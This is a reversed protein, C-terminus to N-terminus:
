FLKMGLGVMFTDSSGPNGGYDQHTYDFRVFHAPTVALDAGVGVAWGLSGDFGAAGLTGYFLVRNVAFGTRGRIWGKLAGGDDDDDDADAWNLSADIGWVWNAAHMFNWGGFVGIIGSDHSDDDDNNDNSDWGGQIGLYHGVWNYTPVVAVPPRRIDAAIASTTLAATASSLVLFTRLVKM